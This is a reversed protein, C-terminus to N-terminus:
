KGRVYGVTAASASVNEIASKLFSHRASTFLVDGPGFEERQQDIVSTGSCQLMIYVEDRSNPTQHDCEVPVYAEIQMSGHRFVEAFREGCTGLLRQLAMEQTIRRASDFRDTM